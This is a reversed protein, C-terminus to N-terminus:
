GRENLAAVARDHSEQTYWAPGYDELLEFLERLVTIPRAREQQGCNVGCESEANLCEYHNFNVHWGGPSKKHHSIWEGEHDSRFTVPGGKCGRAREKSIVGHFWRFSNQIGESLRLPM